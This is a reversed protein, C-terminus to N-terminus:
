GVELKTAKETKIKRKAKPKSRKSSKLKPQPKTIFRCTAFSIVPTATEMPMSVQTSMLIDLCTHMNPMEFQREIAVPNGLQLVMWVLAVSKM